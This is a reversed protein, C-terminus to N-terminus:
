RSWHFFLAIFYVLLTYFFFFDHSYKSTSMNHKHVPETKTHTRTLINYVTVIPFTLIIYEDSSYTTSIFFFVVFFKYYKTSLPFSFFFFILLDFRIYVARSRVIREPTFRFFFVFRKSVFDRRKIKM